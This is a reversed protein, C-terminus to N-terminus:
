GSGEGRVGVEAAWRELGGLTSELLARSEAIEAMAERLRERATVLRSRMASHSVGMIGSIQRADLEEWYYLELATQHDIPLRRLGELLLRQERTRGVMTSPGPALSSMSEVEPDVSRGRAMSRLHERMVNRAVGLIFARFVVGERIRARGEVMRLFTVQILDESGVRVKNEFFRAVADAHREFLQRGARADGARWADLLTADRQWDEDM